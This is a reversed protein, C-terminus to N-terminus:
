QCLWLSQPSIRRLYQEVTDLCTGSSKPVVWQYFSNVAGAELRAISAIFRVQTQSNIFLFRKVFPYDGM